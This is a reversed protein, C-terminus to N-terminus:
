FYFYFYFFDGCLFHCFVRRLLQAQNILNNPSCDALAVVWMLGWMSGEAGLHFSSPEVLYLGWQFSKIESISSFCCMEKIAGANKCLKKEANSNHGFFFFFIKMRVDNRLFRQKRTMIVWPVQWISSVLLWTSSKWISLLLFCVFLCFGEQWSDGVLVNPTTECAKITPTLFSCLFVYHRLKFHDTDNRRNPLECM